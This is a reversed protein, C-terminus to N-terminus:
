SKQIANSLLICKISNLAEELAVDNTHHSREWDVRTRQDGIAQHLVQEVNLRM